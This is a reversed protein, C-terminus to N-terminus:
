SKLAPNNRIKERLLIVKELENKAYPTDINRNDTMYNRLEHELQFLGDDILQLEKKSFYIKRAYHKKHNDLTCQKCRRYPVGNMEFPYVNDETYEHGRKCHTKKPKKVYRLQICTKCQRLIHGEKTLHKYTSEDTFEHGRICHTQKKPM